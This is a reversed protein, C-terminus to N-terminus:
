ETISLEIDVASRSSTLGANQDKDFGSVEMVDLIM